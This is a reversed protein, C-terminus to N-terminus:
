SGFVFCGLSSFPLAFVFNCDFRAEFISHVEVKLQVLCSTRSISLFLQGLINCSRLIGGPSIVAVNAFRAEFL